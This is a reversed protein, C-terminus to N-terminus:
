VALYICCTLDGRQLIMKQEYQLFVVYLCVVTRFRLTFGSIRLIKNM